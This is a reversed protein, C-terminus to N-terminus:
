FRTVPLRFGLIARHGAAKCEAMYRTWHAPIVSPACATGPRSAQLTRGLRSMDVQINVAVRLMGVLQTLLSDDTDKECCDATEEKGGVADAFQNAWQRIDYLRERLEAVAGFIDMRQATGGVEM